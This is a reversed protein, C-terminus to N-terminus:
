CRLLKTIFENFEINFRTKHTHRELILNYGNLRIKDIEDRNKPDLIYEIKQEINDDNFAIMNVMDIFGYKALDDIIPEIYAFLLAGTAPIEFYKAVIYNFQSNGCTSVSAIYENVKNFYLKGTYNHKLTHYGPHELIDIPYTNKLNSIRIRRPYSKSLCGTLLLKNIPNKNFLPIINQEISYPITYCNCGPFYKNISNEYRLLIYNKSITSFYKKYFSYNITYFRYLHHLDEIYDLIIYKHNPQLEILKLLCEKKLSRQNDFEQISWVLIIDYKDLNINWNETFYKTVWGNEKFYDASYKITSTQAFINDPIINTIFLKNSLSMIM